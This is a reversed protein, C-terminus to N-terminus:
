QPRVRLKPFIRKLRQMEEATYFQRFVLIQRTWDYQKALQEHRTFLEEDYKWGNDICRRAAQVALENHVIQKNRAVEITM